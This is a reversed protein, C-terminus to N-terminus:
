TAFICILIRCSFDLYIECILLILLVCMKVCVCEKWKVIVLSLDFHLVCLVWSFFLFCVGSGIEVSPKDIKNRLSMVAPPCM